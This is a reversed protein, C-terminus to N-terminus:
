FSVKGVVDTTVIIEPDGYSGRQVIPEDYPIKSVTTLAKMVDRSISENMERVQDWLQLHPCEDRSHPLSENCTTVDLLPAEGDQTGEFRTGTWRRAM